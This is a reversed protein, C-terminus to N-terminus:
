SSTGLRSTMGLHHVLGLTGSSTTMSLSTQQTGRQRMSTTTSTKSTWPHRHSTLLMGRSTSSQSVRSSTRSETCWACHAYPIYYGNLLNLLVASSEPIPGMQQPEEKEAADPHIVELTSLDAMFDRNDTGEGVGVFQLEETNFILSQSKRYAKAAGSPQTNQKKLHYYAKPTIKVACKPLMLIRTQRIVHSSPNAQLGLYTKRSKSLAAKFGCGHVTVKVQYYYGCAFTTADIQWTGTVDSRANLRFAALDEHTLAYKWVCPDLHELTVVEVHARDPDTNVISNVPCVQSTTGPSIMPTARFEQHRCLDQYVNRCFQDEWYCIIYWDREVLWEEPRMRKQLRHRQKVLKLSPLWQM